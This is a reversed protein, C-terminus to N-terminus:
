YVFESFEAEPVDSLWDPREIEPLEPPEIDEAVADALERLRDKWDSYAQGRDGEQWKESREDYYAEAEMAADDLIERVEEKAEAAESLLANIRAEADARVKEAEELVQSVAMAKEMMRAVAKTDIKNM